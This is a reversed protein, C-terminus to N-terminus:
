ENEEDSECNMDLYTHESITRAKIDEINISDTLSKIINDFPAISMLGIRSRLEKQIKDEFIYQNLVGVKKNVRENLETDISNVLRDNTSIVFGKVYKKEYLLNALETDLKEIKDVLVMSDIYWSEKKLEKLLAKRKASHDEIIDGIKKALVVEIMYSVIRQQETSPILKENTM